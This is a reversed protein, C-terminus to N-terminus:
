STDKISFKKLTKLGDTTIRAKYSALGSASDSKSIIDVEIFDLLELFKCNKKVTEYNTGVAKSLHYFSHVKMDSLAKLIEIKKVDSILLYLM